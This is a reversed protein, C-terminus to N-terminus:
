LSNVVLALLFAGYLLLSWTKSEDSSAAARGVGSMVGYMQLRSAQLLVAVLQVGLVKWKFHIGSAAAFDSWCNAVGEWISLDLSDIAIVIHDAYAWLRISPFRHSTNM